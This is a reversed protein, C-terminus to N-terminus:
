YKKLLAAQEKRRKVLKERLVLEQEKSQLVLNNQRDIEKNFQQEEQLRKQKIQELYSDIEESEKGAQIDERKSAAKFLAKKGDEM